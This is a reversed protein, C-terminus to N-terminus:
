REFWCEEVARWPDDPVPASVFRQNTPMAIFKRTCGAHSCDGNCDPEHAIILIGETTM